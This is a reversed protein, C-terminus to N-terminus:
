KRQHSPVTCLKRWASMIRLLTKNVVITAWHVTPAIHLHQMCGMCQMNMTHNYGFIHRPRHCNSSASDVTCGDLRCTSVTSLCVSPRVSTDCCQKAREALNGVPSYIKSANLEKKKKKKKKLSKESVFRLIRQVSKRLRKVSHFRKSHLHHISRSRKKRYRLPRQWPM